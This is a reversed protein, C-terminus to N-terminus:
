VPVSGRRRGSVDDDLLGEAIQPVLGCVGDAEGHEHVHWRLDRKSAAQLPLQARRDSGGLSVGFRCGLVQESRGALECFEETEVDIPPM